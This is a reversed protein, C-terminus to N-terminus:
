TLTTLACSSPARVSLGLNSRPVGQPFPLGRVCANGIAAPLRRARGLPGTSPRAASMLWLPGLSVDPKGSLIKLWAEIEVVDGARVPLRLVPQLSWDKQGQHELRAGLSGTRAASDDLKLTGAGEERTWLPRWAALGFEFGGNTLLGGQVPGALLLMLLASNILCTMALTGGAYHAGSVGQALKSGWDASPAVAM